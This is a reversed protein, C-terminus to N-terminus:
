SKQTYRDRYEDLIISRQVQDRWERPAYIKQINDLRGQAKLREYINMWACPIENSVECHGDKPGGCPGNFLSKACM